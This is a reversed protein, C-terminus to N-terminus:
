VGSSPYRAGRASRPLKGMAAEIAEGRPGTVDLHASKSRKGYQVPFVESPAFMRFAAVLIAASIM